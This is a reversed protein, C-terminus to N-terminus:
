SPLRRRASVEGGPQPPPLVMRPGLLCAMAGIMGGVIAGGVAFAIAWRVPGPLAEGEATDGAFLAGLILGDVCTLLAGILAGTVIWRLFRLM